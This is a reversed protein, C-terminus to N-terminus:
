EELKEAYTRLMRDVYHIYDDCTLHRHAFALGNQAISKAEADHAILWLLRDVLDSLDYSVPVFHVWPQLLHMPAMLQWPQDPILVLAGMFLQWSLRDAASNGEIAIQYKYKGFAESQIRPAILEEDRLFEELDEAMRAVTSSEVFKADIFPVFRSLWVLRGRPLQLWTTFNWVPLRKVQPLTVCKEMMAPDRAAPAAKCDEAWLNSHTGRWILVAKRDEWRFREMAVMGEKLKRHCQAPHMQWESPLVITSTWRTGVRTFVPVESLDHDVVDDAANLVFSLKPLPRTSQIVNLALLVARLYSCDFGHCAHSEPCSSVTGDEHVSILCGNVHAEKGLDWHLQPGRKVISDRRPRLAELQSTMSERLDDPLHAFTKRSYVPFCCRTFEDWVEEEPPRLSTDECYVEAPECCECNPSWIMPSDPVSCAWAWMGLPQALSVEYSFVASQLYDAEEAQDLLTKLTILKREVRNELSAFCELHQQSLPHCCLEEIIWIGTWCDPDAEVCCRHFSRDSNYWCLGNGLEEQVDEDQGCVAVGCLMFLLLSSM